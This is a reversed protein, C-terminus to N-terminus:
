LFDPTMMLTDKVDPLNYTIVVAGATVPIHIAPASLASDQKGNLFGDSAGFDVTKSTLQQIGGGSGISQYNVKLGNLKNYESFMKSFLPNDFTSGAGIMANDNGATSDAKSGSGSGNCGTIMMSGSIALALGVLALGKVIKM